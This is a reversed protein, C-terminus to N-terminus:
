FSVDICHVKIDCNDPKAEVEEAVEERKEEQKGGGSVSNDSKDVKVATESSVESTGSGTDVSVKSIGSGTDVSVESTGSGTDM